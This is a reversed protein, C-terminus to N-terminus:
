KRRAIDESMILNGYSFGEITSAAAAVLMSWRQIDPQPPTKVGASNLITRIKTDNSADFDWNKEGKELESVISKRLDDNGLIGLLVNRNKETPSIRDFQRDAGNLLLEFRRGWDKGHSEALSQLQIPNTLNEM